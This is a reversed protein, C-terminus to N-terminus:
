GDGGPRGLWEQRAEANRPQAPWLSGSGAVGAVGPGVKVQRGKVRRDQRAVGSCPEAYKQAGLGDQWLVGRCVAAQVVEGSGGCRALASRLWGRAM